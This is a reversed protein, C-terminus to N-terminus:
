RVRDRVWGRAATDLTVRPGRRRQGRDHGSPSTSRSEAWTTLHDRVLEATAASLVDQGGHAISRLRACRNVATGLYDGGHFEAEGTHLAVRVRLEVGDPWLEGALSRQLDLATAVAEGASTFVNFTSDGEGRRKVHVGHHRSVSGRILEEHRDVVTGAEISRDEWLRTSGEIDTLLFTVVGGSPLDTHKQGVEGEM